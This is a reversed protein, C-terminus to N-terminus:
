AADRAPWHKRAFEEQAEGFRLYTVVKHPMADTAIAFMGRRDRALTYRTNRAESTRGALSQATQPEVEDGTQADEILDRWDADPHHEQYRDLAHKSAGITAVFRRPPAVARLKPPLGLTKPATRVLEGAKVLRTTATHISAPTTGCAAALREVTMPGTVLATLIAPKLTGRKVANAARGRGGSGQEGGGFAQAQMIERMTPAPDAVTGFGPMAQRILALLRGEESEAAERLARIRAEEAEADLRKSQADRLQPFLDALATVTQIDM